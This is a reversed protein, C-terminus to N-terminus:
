GAPRLRQMARAAAFGIAVAGLTMDWPLARALERLTLGRWGPDAWGPRETAAVTTSPADLDDEGAPTDSYTLGEVHHLLWDGAAPSAADLLALPRAWGFYRYRDGTRALHEIAHAAQLPDAVPPAPKPVVGLKGRAHHYIPTDVTPPYLISLRM